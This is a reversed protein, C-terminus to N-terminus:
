LNELDQLEAFSMKNIDKYVEDVAASNNNLLYNLVCNSAQTSVFEKNIVKFNRKKNVDRKNFLM